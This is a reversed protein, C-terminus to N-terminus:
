SSNCRVPPFEPIDDSADEANLEEEIGELAPNGGDVQQQIDTIIATTTM